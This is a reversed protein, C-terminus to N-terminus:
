AQMGKRGADQNGGAKEDESRQRPWTDMAGAGPGAVRHHWPPMGVASGTGTGQAGPHCLPHAVAHHVQVDGKGPTVTPRPVSVEPAADPALSVCPQSLVMGRGPQSGGGGTGAPQLLSSSLANIRSSSGQAPQIGALGAAGAAARHRSAGTSGPPLPASQSPHAHAACPPPPSGGHAAQRAAPSARAKSPSEPASPQAGPVVSGPHLPRPASGPCCPFSGLLSLARGGEAVACISRCRARAGMFYGSLHPQPSGRPLSSLLWLGPLSPAAPGMGLMRMGLMRLTGMGGPMGMEMMGQM